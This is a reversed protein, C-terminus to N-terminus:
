RCCLELTGKGEIQSSPCGVGAGRPGGGEVQHGRPSAQRWREMGASPLHQLVTWQRGLRKKRLSRMAEGRERLCKGKRQTVLDYSSRNRWATFVGGQLTDGLAWHSRAPQWPKLYLPRLYLNATVFCDHPQLTCCLLYLSYYQLLWTHQWTPVPLIPSFVHFAHNDLCYATCRFSM